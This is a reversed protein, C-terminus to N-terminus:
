PYTAPGDDGPRSAPMPKPAVPSVARRIPTGRFRYADLEDETVPAATASSQEARSAQPPGANLHVQKKWNLNHM